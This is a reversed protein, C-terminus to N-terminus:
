VTTETSAKVVPLGRYPIEVLLACFNHGTLLPHKSKRLVQDQRQM